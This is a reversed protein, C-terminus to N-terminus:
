DSENGSLWLPFEERKWKRFTVEYKQKQRENAVGFPNCCCKEVKKKMIAEDEEAWLTM